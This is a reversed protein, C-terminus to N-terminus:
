RRFCGSSYGLYSAKKMRTLSTNMWMAALAQREPLRLDMLNAIKQFFDLSLYFEVTKRM